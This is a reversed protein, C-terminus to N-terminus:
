DSPAMVGSSERNVPLSSVRKLSAQAEKLSSAWAEADDLISKSQSMYREDFERLEKNLKKDCIEHFSDQFERLTGTRANSCARDYETKLVEYFSIIDNVEDIIEAITSGASSGNFGALVKLASIILESDDSYGNDHWQCFGGNEVQYNLNKLAILMAAEESIEELFEEYSKGDLDGGNWRAYNVNIVAQFHPHKENPALHAIM